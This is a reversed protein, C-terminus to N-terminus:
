TTGGEGVFKLSMNGSSRPVFAFNGFRAQQNLQVYINGTYFDIGDWYGLKEDDKWFSIETDSVEIKFKATDSSSTIILGGTPSFSFHRNITGASRDVDDRLDGIETKFKEIDNTVGTQVTDLSNQLEEITDAFDESNVLSNVKENLQADTYEQYADTIEAAKDIIKKDVAEVSDTTAYTSSLESLQNLADSSDTLARSANSSVESLNYFKKKEGDDIGFGIDLVWQFESEDESIFKYFKLYNNADGISFEGSKNMFTGVVSSDVSEKVGSYLSSDTIHFGGITAGFAVLDSVTIKEATISKATIVRGNLSNYETQETEVSEGDTNLKYYLGDEGKVVLKDAIVTGGEIIDGKITVGVLEGSIHEDKVVLDKIIGSETFLKEVAEMKINAFDINAYKADLATSKVYDSKIIDIDARDAELYGTATQKFTAYDGSLNTVTADTAQLNAITAYKVDAESTSLKNTQLDSISANTAELDQAYIGQFDAFTGEITGVKANTAQLNAITAYTAAVTQADIKKADLDDIEAEAATLKRNIEVDEAELTGFKGDHATLTGHIAVNDAELTGVRASVANLQEVDVKKAVVEGLVTVNTNIANTTDISASPNSVNGVMNLEHNKVEVIVRNGDKVESTINMPTLLDSGDLKVYQKGGQVVITGYAKNTEQKVDSDNTTKAFLYALDNSLAM